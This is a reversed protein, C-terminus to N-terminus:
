QAKLKVSRVLDLAERQAPSDAQYAFVTYSLGQARVPLVRQGMTLSGFSRPTKPPGKHDMQVSFHTGVSGGLSEFQLDKPRPKLRAASDTLTKQIAVETQAILPMLSMWLTEGSNRVFQLTHGNGQAAGGTWGPPVTLQVRKGAGFDVEQVRAQTPKAHFHITNLLRRASHEAEPKKSTIYVDIWHGDRYAHGAISLHNGQMAVAEFDGIKEKWLVKLKPTLMSVFHDRCSAASDCKDSPEILVDMQEGAAGFRMKVVSADPNRLGIIAKYDCAPFRLEWDVSPVAVVGEFSEPCAAPQPDIQEVGAALCPSASLVSLLVIPLLSLTRMPSVITQQGPTHRM